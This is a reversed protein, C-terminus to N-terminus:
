LSTSKSSLYLELDNTVAEVDFEAETVTLSHAKEVEGCKITFTTNGVPYDRVNWTQKSRDVTIDQTSYVGNENSIVLSIDSTLATPNYVIYPISVQTGQKTTKVEYVSSILVDTKGSEICIVDYILHDSELDNDNLSATVFVDFRHIGHPLKDFNVTTQRGNTTTTTTHKEEGDILIHITKEITGYPTYKFQIIGDYALIDDFTSTVYLDIVAISYSLLKYNGYVDTCKIQVTNDGLSLYETVNITHEGQSITKTLKSVGNVSLNLSGDGTPVGDDTSEFKFSIEVDEEKAVSTAIFDSLNTLKLSIGSPSGSANKLAEDIEEKTYYNSLDVNGGTGNNKLDEIEESIESVKLDIDEKDYYNNLLENESIYKKDNEYKSLKSPTPTTVTRGIIKAM